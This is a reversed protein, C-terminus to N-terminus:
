INETRMFLSVIYIGYLFLMLFGEWRHISRRKGIFMFAFLLLNSLIVVGIDVNNAMSFPLAKITASIGLVFFINFINSGVVNGVAIAANGRLAAVASTVLEPLSTGIAVITLGIVDESIRFDRAISVAADVIWDGGLALGIMGLIVYLWSRLATYRAESPPDLRENGKSQSLSFSYYSFILFFGLFALGDTRTLQNIDANDFFIDNVAVALMISGLLSLPIEAWVTGRQVKLRSIAAALGLVLFTNAINSGLVNGVAIGVNGTLSAYINVFLEPLSTGLAVITLGIVINPVQFRHAISVAGNVLFNAGKILLALGIVLQLYAMLFGKSFSLLCALFSLRM